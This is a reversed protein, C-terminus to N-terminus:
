DLFDKQQIKKDNNKDSMVNIFKLIINGNSSVSGVGLLISLMM